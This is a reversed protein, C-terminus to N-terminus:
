QPRIACRHTPIRIMVPESLPTDGPRHWAMVSAISVKKDIPSRLVYKLSIEISISDNENLSIYNFIDDALNTAM